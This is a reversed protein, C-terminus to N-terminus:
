SAHAKKLLQPPFAQIHQANLQDKFQKITLMTSPEALFAAWRQDLVAREELSVEQTELDLSVSKWIEDVLELKERVSLAQVQPLETLSM